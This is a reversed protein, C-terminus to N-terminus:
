AHWIRPMPMAEKGLEAWAYKLLLDTKLAAYSPDNWLNRLEGPDEQLDFLEGYTQRYYVTLKYRHDIYTKQHITTPEHRFECLAHDRVQPILGQWVMSQDM